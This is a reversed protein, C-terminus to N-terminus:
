RGDEPVGNPSALAARALRRFDGVTLMTEFQPIYHTADADLGHVAINLDDPWDVPSDPGCNGPSYLGREMRLFPELAERMLRDPSPISALAAKVRLYIASRVMPFWNASQAITALGGRMRFDNLIEDVVKWTAREVAEEGAPTALPFLARTIARLGASAIEDTTAFAVPESARVERAAIARGVRELEVALLERAREGAPTSLPATLALLRRIAEAGDAAYGRIDAPIIKDDPLEAVGELDRMVCAAVWREREPTGPEGIKTTTREGVPSPTPRTNEDLNPSAGAESDGSQRAAGRAGAPRPGSPRSGSDRPCLPCKDLGSPLMHPCDDCQGDKLHARRM